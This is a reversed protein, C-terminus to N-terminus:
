CPYGWPTAEWRIDPVPAMLLASRHFHLFGLHTSCWQSADQNSSSCSANAYALCIAGSWCVTEM